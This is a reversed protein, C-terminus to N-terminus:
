VAESRQIPDHLAATSSKSKRKYIPPEGAPRTKWRRHLWLWQDPYARIYEETVRAFLATNAFADAEVDNTKQLTLEEGFTLVYRQETESWLLFGPVVAAGTKRAIRALGSGTCAPIGFFPVFVGQPPTM